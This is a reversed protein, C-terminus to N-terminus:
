PPVALHPLKLILRDSLSKRIYNPFMSVVHRLAENMASKVVFSASLKDGVDGSLVNELTKPTWCHLAAFAMLVASIANVDTNPHSNRGLELPLCFQQCYGGSSGLFLLILRALRNEVNANLIPGITETAAIIMAHRAEVMLRRVVLRCPASDIFISIPQEAVANFLHLKDGVTALTVHLAKEIQSVSSSVAKLYPIRSRLKQEKLKENAKPYDTWNASFYGCDPCMNKVQFEKTQGQHAALDGCWLNIFYGGFCRPCMRM